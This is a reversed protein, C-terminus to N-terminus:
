FYRRTKKRYQDWEPGFRASLFNEEHLIIQHQIYIGFLFFSFNILDPFYICSALSILFIGSSVPNRSFNYIGTTKLHFSTGSMGTTLDPGTSKCATLVVFSGAFLVGVATWSVAVPVPIYNLGPFIASLIFILWTSFLAIEGAYFNIKHIPPNKLIFHGEKKQKFYRITLAVAVYCLALVVFYGHALM